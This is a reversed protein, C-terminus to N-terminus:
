SQMLSFQYKILCPKEDPGVWVGDTYTCRCKRWLGREDATAGLQLEQLDAMPTTPDVQLLICSAPLPQRAAAKAAADAGANGQSVPDNNFTNAYCKCVTVQKPLLIADLM